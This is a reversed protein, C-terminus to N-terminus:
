HLREPGDDDANEARDDLWPEAPKAAPLPPSYRIWTALESIRKAWDDLAAKFTRALRSFERYSDAEATLREPSDWARPVRVVRFGSLTLASLSVVGDSTWRAHLELDNHGGRVAVIRGARDEVDTFAADAQEVVGATWASFVSPEPISTTSGYPLRAHLSLDVRTWRRETRPSRRRRGVLETLLDEETTYARASDVPSWTFEIVASVDFPQTDNGTTRYIHVKWRRVTDALEITEVRRSAGAVFLGGERLAAELQDRFEAYRV